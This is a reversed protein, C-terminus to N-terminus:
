VVVPGRTYCGGQTLFCPGEPTVAGFKCLLFGIGSFFPSRLLVRTHCLQLRSSPRPAVLWTGEPCSARAAPGRAAQGQLQPLMPADGGPRHAQSALASEGPHARGEGCPPWCLLAGPTEAFAVVPLSPDLALLIPPLPARRVRLSWGLQRQVSDSQRDGCHTRRQASSLRAPCHM